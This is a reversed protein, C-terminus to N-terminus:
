QGSGSGGMSSDEGLRRFGDDGHQCLIFFYLWELEPWGIVKFGRRGKERRDKCSL